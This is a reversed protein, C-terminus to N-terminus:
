RVARAAIVPREDQIAAFRDRNGRICRIAIKENIFVDSFSPERMGMYRGFTIQFAVGDSLEVFYLKTKSTDEILLTHERQNIQIVTGAIDFYRNARDAKPAALAASGLTLASALALSGLRLIKM